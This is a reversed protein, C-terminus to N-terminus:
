RSAAGASLAAAHQMLGTADFYDRGEIVKGDEFRLTHYTRLEVPQRTTAEKMRWVGHGVVSGDPALTEPDVGPSWVADTFRLDDFAAHFAAVYDAAEDKTMVPADFAAGYLQADDHIYSRWAAVDEDTHTAFIAEALDVLSQFETKSAPRTASCGAALLLLLAPLSQM